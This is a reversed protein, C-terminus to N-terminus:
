LLSQQRHLSSAACKCLMVHPIVALMTLRMVHASSHTLEEMEFGMTEALKGQAV